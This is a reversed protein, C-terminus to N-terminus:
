WRQAVSLVNDTQNPPTCPRDIGAPELLTCILRDNRCSQHSIKLKSPPGSRYAYPEQRCFRSQNKNCINDPIPRISNRQVQHTQSSCSVSPLPVWSNDSVVRSSRPQSEFPETSVIRAAGSIAFLYDLGCVQPHLAAFATTPLSLRRNCTRTRGPAGNM